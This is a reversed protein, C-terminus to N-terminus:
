HTYMEHCYDYRKCNVQALIDPCPSNGELLSKMVDAHQKLAAFHLATYGEQLSIFNCHCLGRSVVLRGFIDGHICYVGVYQILQM